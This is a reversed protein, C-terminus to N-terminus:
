PMGCRSENPLRSSSVSCRAWKRNVLSGPPAPPLSKAAASAPSRSPRAARVDADNGSAKSGLRFRISLCASPRGSMDGTAENSVLRQIISPPASSLEGNEDTSSM